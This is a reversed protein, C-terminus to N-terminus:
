KQVDLSIHTVQTLVLASVLVLLPKCDGLNLLLKTCSSKGHRSNCHYYRQEFDSLKRKYKIKIKIMDQVNILGTSIWNHHKMAHSASVSM